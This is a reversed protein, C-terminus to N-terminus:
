ILQTLAATLVAIAWEYESLELREDPRHDLSSDGPGYALLPVNWQPAVVNMDSTGTKLKFRPRGGEARIAQRFARTLPTDKEARYAAEASSFDVQFDVQAGGLLRRLEVKVKEPPWAPPLRLGVTLEATQTLGDSGGHMEQLALQLANFISADGNVGAAWATLTQWLALADESVTTDNGASHFNDKQLRLKVVLRGKYGLTLGEWGSPEGIILFDPPPYARLAYRAGKSSPAEEEVAGILTFTLKELVAPPLKAAAALAACFSGKADVAGRGYLAGGELHVPVIGPATDIHGLFTVKVAGRGVQAVANGAKDVFAEAFPQVQSVLYCALEGEGGSFSPISVAERLLQVADLM